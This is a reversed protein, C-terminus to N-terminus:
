LETVSQTSKSRILLLNSAMILIGGLIMNLSLVEDFFWYGFFIASLIELYMLTSATAAKLYKLGYFFLGFVGVGAMLGYFASLGFDVLKAEGFSMFFFPLFILAGLFNQYFVMEFSHYNESESKFLIVTLANALSAGLAALMGIFDSNDFTIPKDSYALVIGSFALVLLFTQYRDMKEGLFLYGFLAVMIPWTYHIIVANGISTYIFALLYLYIRVINILSGIMMKKYNGRFLRIPKSLMWILVILTPIVTRFWAISTAGISDINKILVGTFGAM